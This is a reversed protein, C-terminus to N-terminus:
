FPYNFVVEKESNKLLVDKVAGCGKFAYCIETINGIDSQYTTNFLEKGDLFITLSRDNNEVKLRHWQNMDCGFASLDHNKGSLRKESCVLDIDSICGKASLPINFWGNEGILM